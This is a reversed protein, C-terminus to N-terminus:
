GDDCLTEVARNWAAREADFRASVVLDRTSATAPDVTITGAWEVTANGSLRVMGDDEAQARVLGGRNFVAIERGFEARGTLCAAYTSAAMASGCSNTLGVGREFTRVFLGTERVEVFSVNARNPLWAPAAECVGGIATLESDDAAGVFAILHPNPIAIATFARESGLTAIPAEIIETGAGHLPWTTVDRTAPGAIERITVVGPALDPDRAVTAQSTKLRVTATDLGLREFGARAVCRLGNLCTEAESGDSNFMRMGFAHEEDGTTLLLLGDGGVPGARDALARAIGPWDREAVTGDRADILPFDNGSGHCKVFDIQM